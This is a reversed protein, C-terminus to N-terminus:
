TRRHGHHFVVVEEVEGLVPHFCGRPYVDHALGDAPKFATVPKLLIAPDVLYVQYVASSVLSIPNEKRLEKSYAAALSKNYVPDRVFSFECSKSSSRNSMSVHM